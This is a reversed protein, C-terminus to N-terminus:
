NKAHSFAQTFEDLSGYTTTEGNELEAIARLLKESPVRDDQEAQYDFTLPVKKTHAVNVLFMRLAQATTMGYNEFIVSVEDRLEKELRMNFNVTQAM